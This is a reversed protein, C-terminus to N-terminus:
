ATVENWTQARVEGPMASDYAGERLRLRSTALMFLLSKGSMVRLAPTSSARAFSPMGIEIQVTLRAITFPDPGFGTAFYPLLCSRNRGPSNKSQARLRTTDVSRQPCLAFLLSSM